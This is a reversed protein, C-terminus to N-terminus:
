KALASEVAIWDMVQRVQRIDELDQAKAARRAIEALVVKLQDISV